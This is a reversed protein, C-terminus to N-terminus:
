LLDTESAVTTRNQQKFLYTIGPNGIVRPVCSCLWYEPEVYVAILISLEVETTRLRKKLTNKPAELEESM